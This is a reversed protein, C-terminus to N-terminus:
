LKLSWSLLFERPRSRSSQSPRYHEDSLNKGMVDVTMRWAQGWSYGVTGNLLAYSQHAFQPTDPLLTQDHVFNAGFALYLGALSSRTFDYRSWVNALHPASMQLPANHFRRVNKYNARDAADLTNPDQALIASDHGSFEVIRANMYSYSLYLQWGELPSLTTDLEIGRSRQEGSQVNTILVTGTVPDLSALDNVINKNRIDFYTVTGSVHGSLADFKAGVDVGQGKTPRAAVTPVNRVLLIQSGPVFSEAYTSFLSVSPTAKYLLGFQPTLQSATIADSTGAETDTLQNDTWTQRCGALALLRDDFFGFTSGGYIARDHLASNKHARSATLTSLPINVTRNWTSPDRLDWLPLPSATPTTGLAPDNPAQGATADFTRRVYQAGLLLRMSVGGFRYKGVAQSEVTSGRNEYIQHRLRRGQLFTSNDAMNLNGSFLMDTTYDQYAYAVRLDWHDDAKVDVWSSLGNTTSHRFDGYAMSNWTDPLGPVDVGSLNPDTASPVAGVQASRGAKQMVQPSEIKSFHEYKLSMSLWKTPQALLSPAVDLSHADYPDWYHMDQDYSAAVRYYLGKEIPGTIDPEIRYQGYSGVRLKATAAFQTQPSKTIVNLIGGPAVQGYLFSAPGKVVEVREINTFDFISPGHFGDRLSQINGPTSSVAFGRIALNANGENFDNSRYTVGPSYRAVDFVNVPKQDVIFSETFAQIAFPLDRTPADFRSGSVSNSARYGKDLKSSVDFPSIRVDMLEELSMEALNKTQGPAPTQARASSVWAASLLVGVFPSARWAKLPVNMTYRARVACQGFEARNGITRWTVRFLIATL